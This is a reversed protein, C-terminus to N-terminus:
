LTDKKGLLESASIAMHPNARYNAHMHIPVKFAVRHTQQSSHNQASETSIGGSGGAKFLSVVQIEGGVKANEQTQSRSGEEVVLSVDFEVYNKEAIPQGDISSPNIAVFDKARARGLEAGLAIEYLTDEIFNSLRM